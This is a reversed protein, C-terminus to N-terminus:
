VMELIHINMTVMNLYVKKKTNVMFLRVYRKGLQIINDMLVDQKLKLLMKESFSVADKKSAISLNESPVESFLLQVYDIDPGRKECDEKNRALGHFNDDIASLCLNVKGIIRPHNFDLLQGHYSTEYANLVHGLTVFPLGNLEIMKVKTGSDITYNDYEFNDKLKLTSVMYAPEDDISPIDVTDTELLENFDTIKENVEEGLIYMLNDDLKSFYKWIKSLEGLNDKYQLNIRSAIIKLSDIDVSNNIAVILKLISDYEKVINKLEENELQNILNQIYSGDGYKEVIINIHYSDLNFLVNYIFRKLDSIAGHSIYTENKEYVLKNYDKLEERKNIVGAANRDGVILLMYIKSKEDNTFDNYMYIEDFLKSNSKYNSLAAKFTKIDFNDYLINYMKILKLFLNNKIIDIFKEKMDGFYIYKLIDVFNSMGLVNICYLENIKECDNENLCSDMGLTDLLFKVLYGYNFNFIDLLENIISINYYKDYFRKFEVQELEDILNSFRFLVCQVGKDNLGESDFMSLKMSHDFLYFFSNGYKENYKKYTEISEIEEANYVRKYDDSYKFINITNDLLLDYLERTPGEETFFKDIYSERIICSSLYDPFLKKIEIYKEYKKSYNCISKYSDDKFLITFLETNILAKDYLEKTPNPNFYYNIKDIVYEVNPHERCIFSFDCYHELQFEIFANVNDSFNFIKKYDKNWFYNYLEDQSFLLYNYIAKDDKFYHEIFSMISTRERKIIDLFGYKRTFNIYNEIYEPYNCIEKYSDDKFFKNFYYQNKLAYDYSNKTFDDINYKKLESVSKITDPIFCLNSRRLEIYQEINESYNCKERYSDDKFLISFLKYDFLAEDYLENKIGKDDFYKDVMEIKTIYKDLIFGNKKTFEIYYEINKPYNCIAKYKEDMFVKEFISYDFLAHDYIKKRPGNEDFYESLDNFKMSFIFSELNVNQALSIFSMVSPNDKYKESIYDMLKYEDNYILSLEFSKIFKDELNNKKLFDPLGTYNNKEIYDMIIEKEETSYYGSFFPIIISYEKKELYYNLIDISYKGFHSKENFEYGNELAFDILDTDTISQRDIIYPRGNKIFYLIEQKDLNFNEKGSYGNNILYKIGLENVLAFNADRRDIKRKDYILYDEILKFSDRLKYTGSEYCFQRDYSSLVLKLLNERSILNKGLHEAVSQISSHRGFNEDDAFISDLIRQSKVIGKGVYYSSFAKISKLKNIIEDDIVTDSIGYVIKSYNKDILKNVFKKNSTVYECIEIDEYLKNNLIAEFDEDSIYDIYRYIEKNDIKTNLINVLGYTNIIKKAKEISINFLWTYEKKEFENIINKIDEYELEDFSEDSAGTLCAYLDVNILKRIEDVKFNKINNILCKYYKGFRSTDKLIDIIEDTDKLNSFYSLLKSDLINEIYEFLEELEEAVEAKEEFVKIYDEENMKKELESTLYYLDDFYEFMGDKKSHVIDSIYKDDIKSVMEYWEIITEKVMISYEDNDIEDFINNIRGIVDM